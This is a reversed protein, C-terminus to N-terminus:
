YSFIPLLRNHGVFPILQFSTAPILLLSTTTTRSWSNSGDFLYQMKRMQHLFYFLQAVRVYLGQFLMKVPLHRTGPYIKQFLYRKGAFEECSLVLNSALGSWGCQVTVKAVVAPALDVPVIDPTGTILGLVKWFFKRSYVELLLCTCWDSPHCGPTHGECNSPYLTFRLLAPFSLAHPTHTHTRTKERKKKKWSASSNNPHLPANLHLSKEVGESQAGIRWVAM